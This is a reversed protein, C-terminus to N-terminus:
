HKCAIGLMECCTLYSRLAPFVFVSAWIKCRFGLGMFGLGWGSQGILRLAGCAARYNSAFFIDEEEVAGGGWVILHYYYLVATTNCGAAAALLM